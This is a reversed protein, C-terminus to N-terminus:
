VETLLESYPLSEVWRCFGGDGSWESLRHNKRQKYINRLVAYNGSWTITYNYGMPALIRMARFAATMRSALSKDRAKQRWKNVIKLVKELDYRLEIDYALDGTDISFDDITYDRKTGTHMMSTSSCVTGVKYTDLERLFYVPATIDVTVGIMRLVKGHDPGAKALKLLLAIDDKGPYYVPHKLAMGDGPHIFVLTEGDSKTWSQLPARAGRVAAEWGYTETHEFEIM